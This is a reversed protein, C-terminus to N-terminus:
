LLRCSWMVFLATFAGWDSGIQLCEECGDPTKAEINQNVENLHPDIHRM